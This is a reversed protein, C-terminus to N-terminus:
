GGRDLSGVGADDVALEDFAEAVSAETLKNKNGYQCNSQRRTKNVAARASRISAAACTRESGSRRRSCSSSTLFPRRVGTGADCSPPASASMCSAPSCSDTMSYAGSHKATTDLTLPARRSMVSDAASACQSSECSASVAVGGRTPSPHSSRSMADEIRTASAPGPYLRSSWSVIFRVRWSIAGAYTM